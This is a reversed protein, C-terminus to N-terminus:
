CNTPTYSTVVNDLTEMAIAWYRERAVKDGLRAMDGATSGTYPDHISTHAVGKMFRESWYQGATSQRHLMNIHVVIEVMPQGYTTRERRRSMRFRAAHTDATDEQHLEARQSIEEIELRCGVGRLSSRDSNDTVEMDLNLFFYQTLPDVNRM